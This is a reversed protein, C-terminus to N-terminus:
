RQRRIDIGLLRRWRWLITWPTEVREKDRWRWGPCIELFKFSVPIIVALMKVLKKKIVDIKIQIEDKCFVTLSEMSYIFQQVLCSTTMLNGQSIDSFRCNQDESNNQEKTQRQNTWYASNSQHSSPRKNNNSHGLNFSFEFANFSHFHFSIDNNSVSELYCSWPIFLFHLHSQSCVKVPHCTACRAVLITEKEFIIWRM